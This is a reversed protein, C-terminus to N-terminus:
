LLVRQITYLICSVVTIAITMTAIVMYVHINYAARWDVGDDVIVLLLLIADDLIVSGDDVIVLLLLIADDLVVAPPLSEDLVARAILGVGVILKVRIPLGVGTPLGIRETFMVVSDGESVVSVIGLSSSPVKIHLIYM